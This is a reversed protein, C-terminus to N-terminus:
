MLIFPNIDISVQLGNTEKQYQDLINKINGDIRNVNINLLVNIAIDITSGHSRHHAPGLVVAENSLRSRVYKCNKRNGICGENINMVSM